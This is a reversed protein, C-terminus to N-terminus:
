TRCARLTMAFVTAGDHRTEQQRPDMHFRQSENLGAFWGLQSLRRHRLRSRPLNEDLDTSCTRTM